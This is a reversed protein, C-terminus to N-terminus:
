CIPKNRKSKRMIDELETIVRAMFICEDMMHDDFEDGDINLTDVDEFEEFTEDMAVLVIADSISQGDKVYRQINTQREIDM